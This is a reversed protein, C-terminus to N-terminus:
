SRWHDVWQTMVTREHLQQHALQCHQPQQLMPWDQYERGLIFSLQQFGANSTKSVDHPSWSHFNSTKNKLNHRTRQKFLSFEIRSTKDWNECFGPYYQTFPQNALKRNAKARLWEAGISLAGFKWNNNLSCKGCPCFEEAAHQQKTTIKSNGALRQNNHVRLKPYNQQQHQKRRKRGFFSMTVVLNDHGLVEKSYSLLKKSLKKRTNGLTNTSSIQFELARSNENTFDNFELQSNVCVIIEVSSAAACNSSSKPIRLSTESPSKFRTKYTTVESSWNWWTISILVPNIKKDNAM